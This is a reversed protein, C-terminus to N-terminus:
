RSRYFHAAYMSAAPASDGAHHMDAYYGVCIDACVDSACCESRTDCAESLCTTTPPQARHKVSILQPHARGM